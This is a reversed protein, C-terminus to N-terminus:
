TKMAFARGTLGVRAHADSEKKSYNEVYVGASFVTQYFEKMADIQDRAFARAESDAPQRRCNLDLWAHLASVLDTCVYAFRSAPPDSSRYVYFTGGNRLVRYPACPQVAHVVYAIESQVFDLQDWMDEWLVGTFQAVTMGWVYLIASERVWTTVSNVPAEFIDLMTRPSQFMDIAEQNESPYVVSLADSATITGRVEEFLRVAQGDERNYYQARVGPRLLADAFHVVFENCWQNQQPSQLATKLWRGFAGRVNQDLLHYARLGKPTRVNGAADITMYLTRMSNQLHFAKEVDAFFVIGKELYSESAQFMVGSGEQDIDPVGDDGPRASVTDRMGQIDLVGLDEAFVLFSLVAFRHRLLQLFGYDVMDLRMTNWHAALQQMVFFCQSQNYHMPPVHEGNESVPLGWQEAREPPPPRSSADRAWYVTLLDIVLCAKWALVILNRPCTHNDIYWNRVHMRVRQLLPSLGAFAAGDTASAFEGATYLGLVVVETAYEAFNYRTSIDYVPAVAEWKGQLSDEKAVREKVGLRRGPNWVLGNVTLGNRQLGREADLTTEAARKRQQEKTYRDTGSM